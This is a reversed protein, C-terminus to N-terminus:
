EVPDIKEKNHGRRWQFGAATKTIGRINASISSYYIHVTEAADAVSNYWAVPNGKLDYQTIKTGGVKRRHEQRKNLITEVDIRKLKAHRWYFGGATPERGNAVTCIRNSRIGTQREAEHMSRYSRIFKGDKGYQFIKKSTKKASNRVAKDIDVYEFKNVMRGKEIIRHIKKEISVLALNEPRMDLGNGNKTIVNVLLNQLDFPRVFCYYILRTISFRHYRNDLKVQISLQYTFDHKVTNVAQGKYAKAIREPIIYARDGTRKIERALRKVRGLNSVLFYQELGPIPAWKENLRDTLSMDQYPLIAERQKAKVKEM